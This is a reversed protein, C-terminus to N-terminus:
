GQLLIFRSSKARLYKRPVKRKESKSQISLINRYYRKTPQKIKHLCYQIIKQFLQLNLM